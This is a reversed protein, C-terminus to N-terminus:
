LLKFEGGVVSEEAIDKNDLITELELNSIFNEYSSETISEFIRKSFKKGDIEITEETVSSEKVADPLGNLAAHVKGLTQFCDFQDERVDIFMITRISHVYCLEVNGGKYSLEEFDISKLQEGIEEDIIFGKRIAKNILDGCMKSSFMYVNGVKRPSDDLYIDSIFKKIVRLCEVDVDIKNEIMERTLNNVDRKIRDDIDTRPRKINYMMANTLHSSFNVLIIKYLYFNNESEKYLKYLKELNERFKKYSSTIGDEENIDRPAEDVWTDEEADDEAPDASNYWTTPRRIFATKKGTADICSTIGTAGGSTITSGLIQNALIREVAIEYPNEILKGEGDKMEVKIKKAM